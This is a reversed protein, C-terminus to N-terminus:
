EHRTPAKRTPRAGSRKRADALISEAEKILDDDDADTVSVEARETILVKRSVLVDQAAARALWEDKDQTLQRWYVRLAAPVMANIADQAARATTMHDTCSEVKKCWTKIATTGVGMLEATEKISYGAVKHLKWAGLMRVTIGTLEEAGDVPEPPPPTSPNPSGTGRKRAIRRKKAM